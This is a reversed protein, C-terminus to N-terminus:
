SRKPWAAAPALIPPSGNPKPPEGNPSRNSLKKPPPAVPPVRRCRATGRPPRVCLTYREFYREVTDIRLLTQGNDLRMVGYCVDGSRSGHSVLPRGTSSPAAVAAACVALAAASAAALGSVRFM